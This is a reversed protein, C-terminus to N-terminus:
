KKKVKVKVTFSKGGEQTRCTIKASGAKKATLKGSKSVSVVGPDSSEWTVRKNKATAPAVTAKLTFTKPTKKSGKVALTLSRKDVKVSKVAQKKVEAATKVQLTCSASKGGATATIKVKGTGVAKVRGTSSVTAVKKNSSTWTVAKDTADKPTVTAKLALSAGKKLLKSGMNLTLKEVAVEPQAPDTVTAKDRQVTLKYTRTQNQVKVSFEALTSDGTLAITHAGSAAATAGTPTVVATPGAATLTVDVSKTGAPVGSLTYAMTEPHFAPVLKGSGAQLSSLRNTFAPVTYEFVKTVDPIVGYRLTYSSIIATLTVTRDPQGLGPRTVLYPQVPDFTSVWTIGADLEGTNSTGWKIGDGERLGRYVMSLNSYVHATDANTGKVVDFTLSDAVKQLFATEDDWESQSLPKITLPYDVTATAGWKSITATLTGSVENGGVGPRIVKGRRNNVEFTAADIDSSWTIVAGTGSVYSDANNFDLDRKADSLDADTKDNSYRVKHDAEMSTKVANVELQAAALEESTYALVTIQIDGVAVPVAPGQYSYGIYDAASVTGKLTVNVNAQGFAPRTVRGTGAYPITVADPDTDSAKVVEWEVKYYMSDGKVLNLDTKVASALTNDKKIATWDIEDAMDNLFDQALPKHAPVTTTLTVDKTAGSLTIRLVVEKNKQQSTTYTIAGTSGDIGTSDSSVMTVASGGLVADAKAQFIAVLNTDQLEVTSGKYQTATFTTGFAAAISDLAAQMEEQTLAEVAVTFTKTENVTAKRLTATLTATAPSEGVDPRTVVGGATIVSADSTSWTITTKGSDGRAPLTLNARTTGPLTLAALDADVLTQDSGADSATVNVVTYPRTIAESGLEFKAASLTYTGPEQFTLTARGDADTQVGAETEAGGDKSYLIEAGAINEPTMEPMSYSDYGYLHVDFPEGTTVNLSEEEFFAVKARVSYSIGHIAISDGEQMPYQHMAYGTGPSDPFTPFARNITFMWGYSGNDGSSGNGGMIHSVFGYSYFTLAGDEVLDNSGTQQHLAEALVHLPTIFGPEEIETIGYSALTRYEVVMPQPPMVTMDTADLRFDVTVTQAQTEVAPEEERFADDATGVTEEPLTEEEQPAEAPEEAPVETEAEAPPTAEAEPATEEAPGEASAEEEEGAPVSVSESAGEQPLAGAPSEALVPTFSGLMLAAVLGAVLTRLTWKQKM